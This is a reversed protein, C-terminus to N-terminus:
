AGIFNYAKFVDGENVVGFGLEVARSVDVDLDDGMTTMTISGGGFLAM